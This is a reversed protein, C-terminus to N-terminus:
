TQSACSGQSSWVCDTGFEIAKRDCNEFENSKKKLVQGVLSGLTLLETLYKSVYILNIQM